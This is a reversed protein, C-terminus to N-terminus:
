AALLSKTAAYLAERVNPLLLEEELIPKTEIALEEKGPNRFSLERLAGCRIPDAISSDTALKLLTEYAHEDDGLEYLVLGARYRVMAQYSQEAALQLYEMGQENEGWVYLLHALRVRLLDSKEERDYFPVELSKVVLERDEVPLRFLADVAARRVRSYSRSDQAVSILDRVVDERAVKIMELSKM